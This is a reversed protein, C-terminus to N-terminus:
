TGPDLRGLPRCLPQYVLMCLFNFRDVMCKLSLVPVSMMTRPPISSLFRTLASEYLKKRYFQGSVIAHDREYPELTVQEIPKFNQKRLQEVEHAFVQAAPMTSDICNAKISIVTHGGNKLFCHANVGVIRAQDSQAVDAFIVDVTSLLMRYRQPLRADEVIALLRDHFQGWLACHFM